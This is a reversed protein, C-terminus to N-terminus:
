PEKYFYFQKFPKDPDELIYETEDWVAGVATLWKIADTYDGLTYNTLVKYKMLFLDLTARTYKILKYKFDSLMDSTLFYVIGVEPDVQSQMVGLVGEIDGKHVLVFKDGVDENNAIYQLVENVPVGTSAIVEEADKPKLELNIIGAADTLPDYPKIYTTM